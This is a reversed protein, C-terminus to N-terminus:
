APLELVERPAALESPGPESEAREHSCWLGQGHSAEMIAEMHGGAYGGSGGDGGSDLESVMSWPRAAKNDLESPRPSAVSLQSVDHTGGGYAVGITQLDLIPEAGGGGGDPTKEGIENLDQENSRRHRMIFFGLLGLLLMGFVSAGIATGIKASTSFGTPFPPSSDSVTIATPSITSSAVTTSQRGATSSTPLVSPTTPYFDTNWGIPLGTANPLSATEAIGQAQNLTMSREATATPCACPDPDM